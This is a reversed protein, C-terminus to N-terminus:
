ERMFEELRGVSSKELRAFVKWGKEEPVEELVQGERHTKALVDGRDYPIFLEIVQSLERLHEGIKKLLDELGEGTVASVAVADQEQRVLRQAASQDLDAKNFAYIQTIGDAGIERLVSHVAEISGKPDPDSSDVVHILLDADIM